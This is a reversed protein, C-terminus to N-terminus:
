FDNQSRRQLNSRVQCEREQRMKVLKQQREQIEHPAGINDVDKTPFKNPLEELDRRYKLSRQEKARDREQELQQIRQRISELDYASEAMAINKIRGTKDGEAIYKVLSNLKMEQAEKNALLQEIEAEPMGVPPFIHPVYKQILDDSYEPFEFRDSQWAAAIWVLAVPLSAAIAEIIIGGPLGLQIVIWLATAFEGGSLVGALIGDVALQKGVYKGEIEQILSTQAEYFLRDLENVPSLHKLEIANIERKSNHAIRCNTIVKTARDDILASAVGGGVLAAPLAFAGLRSTLVQTGASFTLGGVCGVIIKVILKTDKSPKRNAIPTLDDCRSEAIRSTAFQTVREAIDAKRHEPLHHLVTESIKRWLDIFQWLHLKKKPESPQSNM